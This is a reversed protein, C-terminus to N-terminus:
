ATAIDDPKGYGELEERLAQLVPMPPIPSKVEERKAVLGGLGMLLRPDSVCKATLAQGDASETVITDGTAHKIAAEVLKDADEETLKRGFAEQLKQVLPKPINKSGKKRGARPDGKQFPKGRGPM